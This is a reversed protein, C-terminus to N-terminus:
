ACAEGYIESLQGRYKMLSKRVRGAHAFSVRKTYAGDLVVRTLFRADSSNFGRGNDEITEARAQEERTQRQYLAQVMGYLAGLDCSLIQKKIPDDDFTVRRQEEPNSECKSCVMEAGDPLIRIWWEQHCGHVTCPLDKAEITTPSTSGYM